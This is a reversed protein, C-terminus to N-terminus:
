STHWFVFLSVFVFRAFTKFVSYNLVFCKHIMMNMHRRSHSSSSSKIIHNGYSKLCLNLFLYINFNIYDVFSVKASNSCLLLSSFMGCLWPLFRKGDDDNKMLGFASFQRLFTWGVWLIKFHLFSFHLLENQLLIEM